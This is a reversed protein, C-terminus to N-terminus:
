KRQPTVASFYQHMEKVTDSPASAMLSEFDIDMVQDEYFTEGEDGGTEEFEGTAAAVSQGTGFLLNKADLRATTLLGFNQVSLDPVFTKSYLYSRSMVGSNDAMVVQAIGTQLLMVVSVIVLAGRLGSSRQPLSPSRFDGVLCLSNGAFDPSSPVRFNWQYWYAM